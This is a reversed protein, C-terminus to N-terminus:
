KSAEPLMMCRIPKKVGGKAELLEGLDLDCINFGPATHFHECIRDHFNWCFEGEPVTIKLLVKM